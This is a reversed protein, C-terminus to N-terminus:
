VAAQRALALDSRWELLGAICMAMFVAYLLAFLLLGKYVYLGVSLVDVAIWIWWNEIWKRSQMFQAALSLCTTTADPLPTTGPIRRLGQVLVIIAVATLASLILAARNPIRSVEVQDRHRDDPHLWHWWGYISVAIFFFQLTMDGFLRARYFVVISLINNAIGTPWTWINQKVLLWVCAAGTIFGLLEAISV